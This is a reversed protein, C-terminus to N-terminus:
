SLALWWATNASTLTGLTTPPAGSLGTNASAVRFNGTM